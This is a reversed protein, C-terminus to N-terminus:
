DGPYERTVITDFLNLTRCDLMQGMREMFKPTSETLWKTYTAADQTNITTVSLGPGAILQTSFILFGVLTFYKKLSKM